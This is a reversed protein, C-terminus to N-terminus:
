QPPDCKKCPAYSAQAESLPISIKSDKLYQCGEQHYSKGTATVYVAVGQTSSEGQIEPKPVSPSPATGKPTTISTGDSQFLITGSLDTRYLDTHAKELKELTVSEPHNYQNGTGCSIVGYTPSVASLFQPITSYSSGHHGVKLVDARLQEPGYQSLMEKESKDEADGTFLFSTNGYTLHLVASYNNLDSYSDSVPGILKADLGNESLITVGSKATKIKLNKNQISTLLREFIQTNSQVKPMYIEGIEFHDIVAPLGGIHDSHPHTAIVYDIKEVQLGDIYDIVTQGYEAEGGDILMTKGGPLQLFQSDGQGVDIYSVTLLDSPADSSIESSGQSSGETSPAFVEQGPPDQTSAEGCGPLLLLVLLLPLLLRRYNTKQIKM